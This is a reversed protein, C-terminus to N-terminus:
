KLTALISQLDRQEAETPSRASSRAHALAAELMGGIDLLTDYGTDEGLLRAEIGVEWEIGLKEDYIGFSQKQPLPDHLVMRLDLERAKEALTDLVIHRYVWDLGERQYLVYRETAKANGRIRLVVLCSYPKDVAREVFTLTYFARGDVLGWDIAWDTHWEPAVIHSRTDNTVRSIGKLLDSLGTDFDTRFDAYKKDRLFLPIDCDEILVPMVVVRREELERMLAATLEKRCWESAVSAKSLVVILASAGAVAEEIRRLLSDGVNLEWRDIWVQARAKVLQFALKEVFDANTHSYSIFVPV